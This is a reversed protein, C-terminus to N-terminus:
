FLFIFLNPSIMSIKLITANDNPIIIQRKVTYKAREPM